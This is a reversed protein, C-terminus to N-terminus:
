RGALGAVYALLLLAVPVAVLGAVVWPPLRPTMDRGTRPDLVREADATTRAVLWVVLAVLLVAGAAASWAPTLGLGGDGGTGLDVLGDTLLWAGGFSVVAIVADPWRLSRLLGSWRAYRADLTSALAAAYAKPPGFAVGAEEGTEAVHSDVEALAQAIRPGPVGHLRLALLLEHQYRELDTSM